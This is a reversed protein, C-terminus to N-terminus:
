KVDASKKIHVIIVGNAGRSGYISAASGKLIDISEVDMPSIMKLQALNVQNGDVIIMAYSSGLLSGAGRIIFGAGNFTVSTSSNVIVDIMSSYIM